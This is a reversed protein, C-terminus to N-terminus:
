SGFTVSVSAHVTLQGPEVNVTDSMQVAAPASVAGPRPPPVAGSEIIAEVGTVKVNAAAALADARRRADAVASQLAQNRLMSDDKLEFQIGQVQNAGAKVATDILAGTQDVSTVKVRITASARYADIGTDPSTTQGPRPTPEPRTRVPTLGVSITQINEPPIGAAKVADLVANIKTANESQAQQATPAQVEAGLSVQAQDPRASAEGSGNTTITRSSTPAEPAATTLGARLWIAATLILAVLGALGIWLGIRSSSVM